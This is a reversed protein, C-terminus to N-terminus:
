EVRLKVEPVSPVTRNFKSESFNQVETSIRALLPNNALPAAVIHPLQQAKSVDHVLKQSLLFQAAQQLQQNAASSSAISPINGTTNSANTLNQSPARTETLVSCCCHRRPFSRM